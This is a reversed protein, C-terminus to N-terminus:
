TCFISRKIVFIGFFSLCHSNSFGDYVCDKTFLALFVDFICFSFNLEQFANHFKVRFLLGEYTTHLGAATLSSSFFSKVV